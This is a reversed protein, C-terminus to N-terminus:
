SLNSANIELTVDSTETTVQVGDVVSDGTSVLPLRLENLDRALPSGLAASAQFLHVISGTGWRVSSHSGGQRLQKM